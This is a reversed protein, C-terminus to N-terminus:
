GHDNQVDARRDEEGKRGPPGSTDAKPERIPPDSKTSEAKSQNALQAGKLLQRAARSTQRRMGRLLEALDFEPVAQIHSAAQHFPVVNLMVHGVADNIRRITDLAEQHACRGNGKTAVQLMIEAAQYARTAKGLEDCLAQALEVFMPQITPPCRRMEAADFLVEAVAEFAERLPSPTGAPATLPVERTDVELAMAAQGELATAELSQESMRQAWDRVRDLEKLADDVSVILGPVPAPPGEIREAVERVQHWFRWIVNAFDINGSSGRGRQELSRSVFDCAELLTALPDPEHQVPRLVPWFVGGVGDTLRYYGFYTSQLDRRLWENFRATFPMGDAEWLAQAVEAEQGNNAMVLLRAVFLCADRDTEWEVERVDSVRKVLEELEGRQSLLRVLATLRCAFEAFFDAEAPLSGTTCYRVAHFAGLLERHQLAAEAELREQEALRQREAQQSSFIDSLSPLDSM